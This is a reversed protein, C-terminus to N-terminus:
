EFPLAETTDISEPETIVSDVMPMVDQSGVLPWGGHEEIVRDIEAMLRITENLAVVVRQYHNIGEDSLTRGRRDKLWKECVQYGGIHFNWVEEPVGEFYHEPNIYVNGDKFKPHGKAVEARGRGTFRTIHTKLPSKRKAPFRTWSAGEYDDDLLHFAILDAGLASLKDFLESDSTIPIRPYDSKLFDSYRTRYRPSHLVAYSYAFFSEPQVVM